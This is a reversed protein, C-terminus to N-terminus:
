AQASKPMPSSAYVGQNELPLLAAIKTMLYDASQQHDMRSGDRNREPLQFPEGFTMAVEARRPILTGRGLVNQSGRIAIPVLPAGSRRAIFGAGPEARLLRATESRHGEPFLVVASGQKLLDFARRLATRDPSHRVVPFAHYGRMLWAWSGKFLEAKAMFWVPRPTWAGIIAPDVAGVHNSVILVPGSAPLNATGRLQFKSGLLIRTLLRALRTLFSYSL